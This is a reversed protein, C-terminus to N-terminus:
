LDERHVLFPLGINEGRYWDQVTKTLDPLVWHNHLEEIPIWEVAVQNEDPSVPLKPECGEKLGCLFVMGFYQPEGQQAITLSTLYEYVCFLSLIDVAANTEERVERHLTEQISEGFDMGGGPWNYHPGHEDDFKVLLVAGDREIVARPAIRIPYKPLSPLGSM